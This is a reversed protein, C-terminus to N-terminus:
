GSGRDLSTRQARCPDRGAPRTRGRIGGAGRRQEGPVTFSTESSIRRWIDDDGIWAPFEVADLSHDIQDLTRRPIAVSDPSLSNFDHLMAAVDLEGTVKTSMTGSVEVTDGTEADKIWDM